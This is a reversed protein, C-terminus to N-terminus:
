DERIVAGKPLTRKLEELVATTERADPHEITLKVRHDAADDWTPYSGIAVHPKARAIADLAAAIDAEAADLYLQRLTVPTRPLKEVVADFQVRFLSPVGPLMFIGDCELVPFRVDESAVLTAGAPAESMRLAEAPVPRDGYWATIRAVMEPLQIVPRQLALAVARVTVDDHTPGVGGSTVLWRARCRCAHVQEVIADVDDRVFHISDLEVGRERCRRILHAGNAETVKATLVENGIILASLAARSM